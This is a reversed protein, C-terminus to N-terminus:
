PFTGERDLPFNFLYRQTASNPLNSVAVHVYSTPSGWTPSCMSVCACGFYSSDYSDGSSVVPIDVWNTWAPVPFIFPVPEIFLNTSSYVLVIGDGFVQTTTLFVQSPVFDGMIWDNPVNQFVINTAASADVDDGHAVGVTAASVSKDSANLEREDNECGSSLFFLAVSAGFVFGRVGMQIKKVYMEGVPQSFLM